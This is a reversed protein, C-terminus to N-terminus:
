VKEYEYTDNLLALLNEPVTKAAIQTKDIIGVQLEEAKAYVTPSGINLDNMTVIASRSEVNGFIYNHIKIEHLANLDVKNSKCSVFLLQNNKIALIDIECVLKYKGYYKNYDIVASMQVDDFLESEKLVIYVYNELFEGSVEFLSQIDKNHFILTNGEFHFLNFRKITKYGEDYLIRGKLEKNLEYICEDVKHKTILANVRQIYTTFQQYKKINAEVVRKIINNTEQKFRQNDHLQKLSIKGGGLLVVDEINLKFINTIRKDRDYYYKISQNHNDYYVVDVNFKKSAEFLKITLYRSASIDVICDDNLYKELDNEDEEKIYKIKLEDEKKYHRICESLCNMLREDVSHHYLFYVEDVDLTLAILANELNNTEKFVKVLRTM